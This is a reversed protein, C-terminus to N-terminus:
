ESITLVMKRDPRSCTVLVSGDATPFRVMRLDNTEVINIPAVGLDSAVSRIAELCAEFSMTKTTSEASFAAGSAAIMAVSFLGILLKDM